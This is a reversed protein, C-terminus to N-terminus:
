ALSLERALLSKIWDQDQCTVACFRLKKKLTRGGIM